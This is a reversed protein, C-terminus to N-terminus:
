EDAGEYWQEEMAIRWAELMKKDLKLIGEKTVGDPLKAFSILKTFVKERDSEAVRMLLHWLTLSDPPDAKSLIVRLSKSGGNEFDFKYIAKQLEPPADAFVPTGLGKGKKTLCIAGAPVISEFGDGELSVYGSTVHLKNNGEKDVELTYECGLDVAVASPTDVIFLRPPALITAKLIGHELALRHENQDTNVLKVRSNPAIEVDGIDAVEIRARSDADTELIQGITLNGEKSIRQNGALPNGTIAEVTWAAPKDPLATTNSNSIIQTNHGIENSQLNHYVAFYFLAFFPLLIVSALAFAPSKLFAFSPSFSPKSPKKKDLNREIENWLDEPADTRPLHGAFTAGIKIEDHEKRCDACQLLHAAIIQREDPPLEHNLYASLEKKYHKESM